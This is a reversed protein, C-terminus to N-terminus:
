VSLEELIPKSNVFNKGFRRIQGSKPDIVYVRAAQRNVRLIESVLLKDAEIPQNTHVIVCKAVGSVFPLNGSLDQSYSIDDRESEMWAKELGFSHFNVLITNSPLKNIDNHEVDGVRINLVVGPMTDRTIYETIEEYPDQEANVDSSSPVESAEYVTVFRASLENGSTVETNIESIQETLM